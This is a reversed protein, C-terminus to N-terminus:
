PAIMASGCVLSAIRAKKSASSEEPCLKEIFKRGLIRDDEQSQGLLEKVPFSMIGFDRGLTYLLVGTATVEWGTM